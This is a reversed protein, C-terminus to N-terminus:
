VHMQEPDHPLPSFRVCFYFRVCNDGGLGISGINGRHLNGVYGFLTLVTVM